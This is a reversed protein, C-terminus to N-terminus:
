IDFWDNIGGNACLASLKIQASGVLDSKTVDEDLVEINFDDGIYKVEIDFSESWKTERKGKYIVSLKTGVTLIKNPDNTKPYPCYPHDSHNQLTCHGSIGSWQAIKKITLTSGVHTTRISAM